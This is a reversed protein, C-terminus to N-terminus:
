IELKGGTKFAEQMKAENDLSKQTLRGISFEIKTENNPAKEPLTKLNPCGQIFNKLIVGPFPSPHLILEHLERLNKARQITFSDNLSGKISQLNHTDEVVLVHKNPSSNRLHVELEKLGCGSIFLMGEGRIRVSELSHCGVIRNDNHAEQPIRLLINTDVEKLNPCSQIKLGMEFDCHIKELNEMEFISVQQQDGLEKGTVDHGISFFTIGKPLEKLEPNLYEICAFEFGPLVKIRLTKQCEKALVL